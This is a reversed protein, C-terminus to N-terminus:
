DTPSFLRTQLGTALLEQRTYLCEGCKHGGLGKSARCYNM